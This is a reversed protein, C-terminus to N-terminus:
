KDFCPPLHHQQHPVVFGRRTTIWLSLSLQSPSTNVSIIRCHVCKVTEPKWTRSSFSIRYVLVRPPLATIFSCFGVHIGLTTSQTFAWYCTNQAPRSTESCEGMTSRHKSGRLSCWPGVKEKRSLITDNRSTIERESSPVNPNPERHIRQSQLHRQKAWITRLSKKPEETKKYSESSCTTTHTLALARCEAASKLGFCYYSDSM